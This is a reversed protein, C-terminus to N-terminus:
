PLLPPAWIMVSNPKLGAISHNKNSIYKSPGIRGGGNDTISCYIFAYWEVLMLMTKNTMHSSISYVISVHRNCGLGLGFWPRPGTYLSLVLVLGRNRMRSVLKSGSTTQNQDPDPLALFWSYDVQYWAIFRDGQLLQSVEVHAIDERPM